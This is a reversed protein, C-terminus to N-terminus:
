KRKGNFNARLSKVVHNGHEDKLNKEDKQPLTESRLHDRTITNQSLEEYYHASLASDISKLNTNRIVIYCSKVLLEIRVKFRM